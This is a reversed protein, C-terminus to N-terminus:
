EGREKYKRLSVKNYQAVGKVVGEQSGISILSTKFVNNIGTIQSNSHIKLEGNLYAGKKNIIIEIESLNELPFDSTVNMGHVCQLRIKKTHGNYYVHWKGNGGWSKINIGMSLVNGWANQTYDTLNINMYLEYNDWDIMKDQWLYFPKSNSSFNKCLVITDNDVVNNMTLKKSM